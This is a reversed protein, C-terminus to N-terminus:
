RLSGGALFATATEEFRAAHSGFIPGHGGNPVIWLSSDPIARRLESALEVPYLPDSDGFVVLTRAQVTHLTERTFHVDDSSEAMNHTQEILWGIQKEGGQSRQRILTQEREPLAEFSFARQIARAQEPFYPPVSVLVMAEIREPQQIAMHLLAIGGGSLGIAKVREVGLFDLLAFVDRASQQFHHTGEFGASAGNGRLDPGIIQFGEPVDKFVFKWDAGTGSWGHLWLLPGGASGFVEYHMRSGNINAEM